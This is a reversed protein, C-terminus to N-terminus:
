LHFIVFLCINLQSAFPFHKSFHWCCCKFPMGKEEKLVQQTGKIKRTKKVDKHHWYTNKILKLKLHTEPDCEYRKVAEGIFSQIQM